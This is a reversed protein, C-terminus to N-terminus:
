CICMASDAGVDAISVSIDPFNLMSFTSQSGAPSVACEHSDIYFIADFLFDLSLGPLLPAVAYSVSPLERMASHDVRAPQLGRGIHGAPALLAHM